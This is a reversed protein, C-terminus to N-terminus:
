TTGERPSAEDIADLVTRTAERRAQQARKARRRGRTLALWTGVMELTLFAALTGLTIVTLRFTLDAPWGVLALATSVLPELPLVVLAGALTALFARRLGTLGDELDREVIRWPDTRPDTRYTAVITGLAIAVTAVILPIGVGPQIGTIRLAGLGFLGAGALGLGLGTWRAGARQARWQLTAVSTGTVLLVPPVVALGLGEALTAIGLALGVSVILGALLRVALPRYTGEVPRQVSTLRDQLEDISAEDLHQSRGAEEIASELPQTLSGDLIYRDIASRLQDYAEDVQARSRQRHPTLSGGLPPGTGAVSRGLDVLLTFLLVGLGFRAAVLPGGQLQSKLALYATIGAVALLGRLAIALVPRPDRTSAM